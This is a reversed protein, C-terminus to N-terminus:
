INYGFYQSFFAAQLPLSAADSVRNAPPDFNPKRYTCSNEHEGDRGSLDSDTWHDKVKKRQYDLKLALSDSSWASQKGSAIDIISPNQCGHREYGRM